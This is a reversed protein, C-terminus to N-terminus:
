CLSSCLKVAPLAEGRGGGWCVSYADRHSDGGITRCFCKSLLKCIYAAQCNINAGPRSAGKVQVAGRARVTPYAMHKNALSSQVNSPMDGM